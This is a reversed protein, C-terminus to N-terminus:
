GPRGIADAAAALEAPRVLTYIQLAKLDAHGLFAQTVRLNGGSARLMETAARHRLAHLTDAYGCSRLYNNAYHSVLAGTMPGTGQIRRWCPGSDPLAPALLDWVWGPVPVDRVAMGKGVVRLWVQGTADVSFSERTLGAIESARLGCWGALLLWPKIRTPAGAIAAELRDEAIPRPLGRKQRPTPLLAAPNDPREGRAQLWKFYPRILATHWRVSTLSPLAKAQWEDLRAATVTAPDSGLWEALRELARRRCKITRRSRGCRRM